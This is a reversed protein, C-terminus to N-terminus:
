KKKWGAAVTGNFTVNVTATATNGAKDVVTVTLALPGTASPRVDFSFTTDTLDAKQTTANITISALGSVSADYTGDVLISSGTDISAGEAPSTITVLPATKDINVPVSVMASNGAVDTATGTVTTTGENTVVQPAPCSAIGSGSDACVFSVTVDTNNWGASNPSPSVVATITPPLSDIKVTVSTSASNRARDTVTGKVITEGQETVHVIGQIDSILAGAPITAGTCSAIGSIGDHCTFTVDVPTTTWWGNENAPPAVSATITPVENDVGIIEITVGSKPASRLEVEIKNNEQLMVKREIVRVKQNFDKPGVVVQGNLTIVASSVRKKYENRMGGNFIKMTYTTDPNLVAFQATQVEPKGKDRGFNTPELAYFQGVPLVPAAAILLLSIIAIVSIAFLPVHSIVTTRRM